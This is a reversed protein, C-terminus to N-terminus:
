KGARKFVGSASSLVRGEADLMQATAYVIKHGGGTVTGKATVLGEAVAAVYNTNLSLTMVPVLAGQGALFRSAAFGCAADLMMAHIGGHLTGNRNRHKAAINLTVSATGSPDHLDIAYGVLLEAGSQPPDHPPLEGQDNKM